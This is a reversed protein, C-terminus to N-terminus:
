LKKFQYGFISMQEISLDRYDFIYRGKFRRKLYDSIFIGIQPSFVIVRDYRGSKLHDTIFQGYKWYGFLKQWRGTKLASRYAIGEQEPSNDRNWYIIEFDVNWKNLLGTYIRVYPCYWLNNQVLLAVKM